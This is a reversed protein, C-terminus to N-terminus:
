SSKGLQCQRGYFGRRCDCQYSRGVTICTGDNVCPSSGCNDESDVTFSYIFLILFFFSIIVFCFLALPFLCTVVCTM